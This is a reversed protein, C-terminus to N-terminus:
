LRIFRTLLWPLCRRHRSRAVTRTEAPSRRRVPRRCALRHRVEAVWAWKRSTSVGCRTTGPCRRSFCCESPRGQTMQLPQLPQSEGSGTRGDAASHGHRPLRRRWRTGVGVSGCGIAVIANSQETRTKRSSTHGPLVQQLVRESILLHSHQQISM